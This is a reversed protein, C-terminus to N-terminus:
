RATARKCLDVLADVQSKVGDATARGAGAKFAAVSRELEGAVDSIAQFGYGGGAGKLQHAVREVKELEQREWSGLLEGVRVPMDQVFLELIERMDPDTAFESRL